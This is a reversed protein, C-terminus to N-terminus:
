HSNQAGYPKFTIQTHEDGNLKASGHLEIAYGSRFNMAIPADITAINTYYTDTYTWGNAADQNITSQSGDSEVKTVSITSPDPRQDLMVYRTRFALRQAQLGAAADSFMSQVASSSCIDYHQGGLDSAMQQYRQGVWAYHGLCNNYNDTLTAAYFKVLQPALVGTTADKKLGKFFNLNNTYSTEKSGDNCYVNTNPQGPPHCTNNVGSTDEGTTLVLVLLMADSRILKSTNGPLNAESTLTNQISQFGPEDARAGTNYSSIFSNFHDTWVFRLPDVKDAFAPDAGPFPASWGTSGEPHSNWNGDQRSATISKIGTWSSDPVLPAVAFRYDWNQADLTKMLSQTANNITDSALIASGSNDQALLVDVKPPITFFGPGSDTNVVNTVMFAQKGCGVTGILSILALTSAFTLHKKM